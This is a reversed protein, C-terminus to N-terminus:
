ISSNIWTKLDEFYDPDEGYFVQINSEHLITKLISYKKDGSTLKRRLFDNVCFAYEVEFGDLMLEYERKLAPGSWLKTEVSGQVNQEKKELVKIKRRTGWDVIYAEDPCRFFGEIGYTKLLLTKLGNQMVFSIKPGDCFTKTFCFDNKGKGIVQCEYGEEFLRSMNNTQEEFLKGHFNTNAGGAGTGKNMVKLM